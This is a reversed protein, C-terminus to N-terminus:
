EQTVEVPGEEKPPRVKDLAQKVADSFFYSGLAGALGAFVIIAYGVLILEIVVGSGTRPVVPENALAALAASHLASGYARPPDFEFLLRGGVLIVIVTVSLLVAIRDFLTKEASRAPGITAALTRGVRAVRAIRLVRVFRLVPIALILIEWWRRKLFGFTSPDVTVRTVFEAVFLAWIAYELVELALAFGPVRQEFLPELAWAFMWVLGLVILMPDLRDGIRAAIRERETRPRKLVARRVPSPSRSESM